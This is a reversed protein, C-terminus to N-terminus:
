KEYGYERAFFVYSHIWRDVEIAQERFIQMGYIVVTRQRRRRARFLDIPAHPFIRYFERLFLDVKKRLAEGVVM